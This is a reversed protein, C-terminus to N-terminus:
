KSPIKGMYKFSSCSDLAEVLPGPLADKPQIGISIHQRMKDATVNYMWVMWETCFWNAKEKQAVALVSENEDISYNVYGARRMEEEHTLTSTFAVASLGGGTNYGWSSDVGAKVFPFAEIAVQEALRQNICRYVVYQNHILDGSELNSKYINALIRSGNADPNLGGSVEIVDNGGVALGGHVYESNNTMTSIVGAIADGTQMFSGTKVRIVMDGPKTGTRLMGM